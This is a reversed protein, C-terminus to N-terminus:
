QTKGSQARKGCHKVFVCVGAFVLLDQASNITSNPIPPLGLMSLALNGSDGNRIPQSAFDYDYRCNGPAFRRDHNLAYLDVNAAVGPAWVFFPVTFHNVAFPIKHSLPTPLGGGHDATVIVATKGVLVSDNEILDLVATLYSSVHGVSENWESSGWSFKHGSKDLDVYLLFAYNFHEDAMKALFLENLTSSDDVSDNFLRTANLTFFDIKNVGNDVGTVDARGGSAGYSQNYIVFKPKSGYLATKLGNDHAVDFASAIYSVFPNNNHLTRTTPPVNNSIYGHQVTNSQNAPQLVPRGTLISTHDPLTATYFYDARANFTYAGEDVFRQFGDLSGDSNETELLDKLIISNM